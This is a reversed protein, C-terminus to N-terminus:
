GIPLSLAGDFSGNLPSLCCSRGFLEARTEFPGAQCPMLRTWRVSLAVTLYTALKIPISLFFVRNCECSLVLCPDEPHERETHSKELSRPDKYSAGQTRMCWSGSPDEVLCKEAWFDLKVRANTGVFLEQCAFQNEEQSIKRSGKSLFSCSLYQARTKPTLKSARGKEYTLGSM